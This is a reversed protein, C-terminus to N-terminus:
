RGGQRPAGAAPDGHGDSEQHGEPRRERQRAVPIIWPFLLFAPLAALFTYFFFPGYGFRAAGLGGLYGAISRTFGFLMSFFAYHTASHRKDCLSMMFAMFPASGMGGTLSEGLSAFYTTYRWMGPLAAVWYGLNSLAQLAGLVPLALAIGWRSTVYGGWMAGVITALAGLTGSVLGIETRTFGQDVWFPSVMSGMWADGLKFTLIFLIIAWIHPLQRIRRGAEALQRWVAPTGASGGEGGVRPQQFDSSGLVVLSMAGMLVAVGVFSAGWGVAESLMVLGGGAAILGVRYAGMRLGNALGLERTELLDITYADVAIDQTASALCLGGLLLWFSWPAPAVAFQPILLMGVSCAVQAPVIWAARRGFRDVLPAWLLKFSWALGLISLLGIQELPMGQSRFYVALTVNVFGYPVGEAFYLVGVVWLKRRLSLQSASGAAVSARSM